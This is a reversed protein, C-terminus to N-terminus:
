KTAGDTDPADTQIQADTGTTVTLRVIFGFEDPVAVPTDALFRENKPNAMANSPFGRNKPPQLHPMVHGTLNELLQISRSHSGIMQKMVEISEKMEELVRDHENVKHLIISLMGEVHKGDNDKPRIREHPPVYKDKRKCQVEIEVMKKALEDMQTMLTALMFDKEVEQNTEAMHDLLHAAKEYPQQTIGDSILQDDM